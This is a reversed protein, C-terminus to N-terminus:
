FGFKIKKPKFKKIEYIPDGARGLERTLKLVTKNQHNAIDKLRRKFTPDVWLRTIDNM